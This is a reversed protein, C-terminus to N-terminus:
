LKRLVKPINNILTREVQNALVSQLRELLPKPLDAEDTLNKWYRYSFSIDCTQPTTAPSADLNQAAINKPFCEILEVGYRRRNSQDLSYIQIKGVYDDYYQMAWTNPDYALRQWTEFFQKEKYNSSQYFSATIDAFTFGNVIERTPGYINTDSVSDLNRGPFDIKNCQMSIDRQEGRGINGFMIQYFINQTKGAGGSGRVGTPPFFIVEYRSPIAIGEDDRLPALIENIALAATAEIFQSLDGM